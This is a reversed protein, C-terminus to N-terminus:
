LRCAFMILVFILGPINFIMGERWCFHCVYFHVCFYPILLTFFARKSKISFQSRDYKYTYLFRYWNCNAIEYFCINTSQAWFWTGVIVHSGFSFRVWFDINRVLIKKLAQLLWSIKLYKSFVYEASLKIELM